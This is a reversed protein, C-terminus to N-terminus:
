HFDEVMMIGTGSRSDPQLVTYLLYRGDPSVSFGCVPQRDFEAIEEMRNTTFDLFNIITPAWPKPIFYIGRDTVAYNGCHVTKLVETEQGGDVPVKWLSGTDPLVEQSAPVPDPSPPRVYYLFGGGDSPSPGGFDGGSRTVQIAAGGALPRKWIQPTGSRKSSFYVWRGDRSFRGPAGDSDLHKAKGGDSSISYIGSHGDQTSAFYISRGDPSWIPTTAFPGGEPGGLATLQVPNAGDSDSVWIEYSGSRTSTFAIRKGDPSYSPTDELRTSSILRVPPKGDWRGSRLELRWIDSDAIPLKVFALRGQRSVAPGFATEGAFALRERRGPRWGPLLRLRWLSPSHFLGSSFLLSRGDPMWALREVYPLSAVPTPQGAPKLDATLGLIEISGSRLFAVARGDPSVAPWEDHHTGAPSTLRRKEGGDVPILFLAFSETPTPRDVAALFQGAPHWSVPSCSYSYISTLNMGGKAVEAVKRAPGGVSPVLFIGCNGSPVDDVFAIFRGDPSWAPHGQKTRALLVPPDRGIVKAYIGASDPKPGEWYFAVQNGDPSFTPSDQDGAYATLPVPIPEAAAPAAHKAALWAAVGGLMALSIATGAFLPRTFRRQPSPSAPEQREVPAIFRYGKRPLTQVFRPNDASDGLAFRIKKIATNLAQDFEVFTDAPWLAQKLEERTIVQGAREVLLTLVQLPQGQLKVEHGHKRLQRTELDIEFLGFWLTRPAPPIVAM